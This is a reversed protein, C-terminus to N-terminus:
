NLRLPMNNTLRHYFSQLVQVAGLLKRTAQRQTENGGLIM